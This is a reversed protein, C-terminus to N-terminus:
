FESKAEALNALEMAIKELASPICDLGTNVVNAKAYLINYQLKTAIDYVQYMTIKEDDFKDDLIKEVLDDFEKILVENM